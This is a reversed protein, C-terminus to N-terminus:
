IKLPIPIKFCIRDNLSQQLYFGREFINIQYNQALDLQHSQQSSFTYGLQVGGLEYTWLHEHVTLVLLCYPSYHVQYCSTLLGTQHSKAGLITNQNSEHDYLPFIFRRWFIIVYHVWSPYQYFPVYHPVLQYREFPKGYEVLFHLIFITHSLVLSELLFLRQYLNGRNGKNKSGCVLFASQITTKATM